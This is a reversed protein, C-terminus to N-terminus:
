SPYLPVLQESPVPPPPPPPPTHPLFEYPALQVSSHSMSLFELLAFASVLQRNVEYGMDGYHLQLEAFLRKVGEEGSYRGLGYEVSGSFRRLEKGLQEAVQQENFDPRLARQRISWWEQWRSDYNLVFRALYNIFSVSYTEEAKRFSQEYFNSGRGFEVKRWLCGDAELCVSAKGTTRWNMAWGDSCSERAKKVDLLVTEGKQFDGADFDGALVRPSPLLTLTWAAILISAVTSLLRRRSSSQQEEVGGSGRGEEELEDFLQAEDKIDIGFNARYVRQLLQVYMSEPRRENDADEQMGLCAAGRRNQLVPERKRMKCVRGGHHRKVFKNTLSSPAM